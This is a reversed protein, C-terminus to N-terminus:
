PSILEELIVKALEVPIANGIQTFRSHKSGCLEFGEPFGQFRLGEEETLKDFQDDKVWGHNNYDYGFAITPAPETSNRLAARKRAGAQYFWGKREPFRDELSVWPLVGLDGRKIESKLFKQHTKTPPKVEKETSAMLIARKRTQPSGYEEAELNEVWTHYGHNEMIEAFYEWLEKVYPVQEFAVYKPKTGIVFRLPEVVLLSRKDQLQPFLDNKTDLGANIDDAYQYVLDKDLRGKGHGQKSFGQCPPSAVLIDSPYYNPDLLSIEAQETRLGNAERTQCMYKELEIGLVNDIEPIQNAAHDWGGAGAVLDLMEM